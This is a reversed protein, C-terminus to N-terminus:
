IHTNIKNAIVEHAIQTVIKQNWTQVKLTTPNNVRSNAQENWINANSQQFVSGHSMPKM